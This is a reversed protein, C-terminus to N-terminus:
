PLAKKSSEVFKNGQVRNQEELVVDVLEELRIEGVFKRGNVFFTPTADVRNRLGEKKSEVLQELLKKNALLTEFKVEDLGVHAAWGPQKLPCFQDFHEYAYLAFPWFKNLANAAVFGMGAEKSFEHGRIPFVKFYLKAIGKLVGETVAQHLPPTIKACYPCRGCAYEVLTVSAKPDGVVPVSSLDISVPREMIMSRARRSLARQIRTEEQGDQIRRCINEALRVALLCTPKEELCAAITDDCCDYPHLKDLLAFARSQLEKSLAGCTPTSTAEVNHSWSVLVVVSFVVRKLM